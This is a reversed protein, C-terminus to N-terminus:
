LTRVPRDHTACLLLWSVLCMTKNCYKRSSYSEIMAQHSYSGRADSGGFADGLWIRGIDDFEGGQDGGDDVLGWVQYEKGEGTPARWSCSHGVSGASQFSVLVVAYLIEVAVALASDM